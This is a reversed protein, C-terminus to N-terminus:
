KVHGLWGSTFRYNIFIIRFSGHYQYHIMRNLKTRFILYLVRSDRALHNAHATM